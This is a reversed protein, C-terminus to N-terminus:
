YDAWETFYADLWRMREEQYQLLGSIDMNVPFEQWRQNERVVAGTEALYRQNEKLLRLIEETKLFSERHQHWRALFATGIEEPNAFKLRPLTSDAYICSYDELFRVLNPSEGYFVNGFTYDLDWPIQKMVYEGDRAVEAAFYMNKYHNDSASTVMLFMFVDSLNATNVTALAEEYDLDPNLYFRENYDQMPHWVAAYDSIVDPHNIRIAAATSASNAVAVTFDNETPMKWGVVKYLIDNKDLNLKEADVPEVLCYIGLYEENIILEAYELRPGDQRLDKDAASFAQWIQAATKERIRTDDTYLANLKWNNDSRMGLQPIDAKKWQYDYLKLAYGKKELARSTGGKIRCTMYSQHIEYRDSGVDPNFIRVVGREDTDQIQGKSETDISIVPMGSVVLKYEIYSEGNVLWLSFAHGERIADQKRQWYVDREGYLSYGDDAASLEGTWDRTHISQPLIFTNNEEDYPLPVEEFLIGPGSEAERIGKEAWAGVNEVLELGFPESGAFTQLWVPGSEGLWLVALGIISLVCILFARRKRM